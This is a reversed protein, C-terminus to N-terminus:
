GRIMVSWHADVQLQVRHGGLTAEHTLGDLDQAAAPHDDIGGIRALREAAMDAVLRRELADAIDPLRISIMM